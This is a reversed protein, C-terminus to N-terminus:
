GDDDTRLIEAVIVSAVAQPVATALDHPERWLAFARSQDLQGRQLDDYDVVLRTDPHRGALRIGRARIGTVAILSPGLAATVAALLVAEHETPEAVLRQDAPRPWLVSAAAAARVVSETDIDIRTEAVGEQPWEVVFQTVGPPPLATVFFNHEWMGVGGGGGRHILALRRMSERDAMRDLNTARRGDAFEIGFRLVSPLLQGSEDLHRISAGAFGYMFQPRGLDDDRAMIVMGVRFGHSFVTVSPIAAAVRDTHFLTKNLAVAVGFERDPQPLSPYVLGQIGADRRLDDLRPLEFFAM